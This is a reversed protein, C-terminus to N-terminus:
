GASSRPTSCSRSRWRPSPSASPPSPSTPCRSTATGSCASRCSRSPGSAARGALHVARLVVVGAVILLPVSLIGTITGWDYNEGEQIGFVILFMGVASLAVGIWDFSHSHTPLQPVLRWALVFAVIGVPVNIFFIWEWGPGDVLLGGVLPGVLTAVGATAGWLSM